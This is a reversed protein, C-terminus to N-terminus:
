DALSRPPPARLSGAHRCVNPNNRRRAAPPWRAAVADHDVPPGDDGDDGGAIFDHLHVLSGLFKLNAIGVSIRERRLHRAGAARGTYQGHRAVRDLVSALHDCAAEGGVQQQEGAAHRGALVIYHFFDQGLEAGFEIEVAHEDLRSLRQNESAGASFVKEPQGSIGGRGHHGELNKRAGGQFEEGPLLGDGQM